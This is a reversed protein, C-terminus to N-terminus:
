DPHYASVGHGVLTFYFDIPVRTRQNAHVLGKFRERSYGNHFDAHRTSVSV